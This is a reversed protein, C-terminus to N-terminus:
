IIQPPTSSHKADVNSFISHYACLLPIDLLFKMESTMPTYLLKHGPKPYITTSDLPAYKNAYRDDLAV